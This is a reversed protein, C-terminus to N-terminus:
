YYSRGCRVTYVIREDIRENLVCEKIVVVFGCDFHTSNNRLSNVLFRLLKLGTNMGTGAQQVKYVGLVYTGLCLFEVCHSNLEVLSSLM